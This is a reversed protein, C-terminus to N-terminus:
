YLLLLDGACEVHLGASKTSGSVPWFSGTGPFAMLNEFILVQWAEKDFDLVLWRYGPPWCDPSSDLM